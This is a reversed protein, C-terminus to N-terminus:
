IVGLFRMRKSKAPPSDPDENEDISEENTKTESMARKQLKSMKTNIDTETQSYNKCLARSKGSLNFM